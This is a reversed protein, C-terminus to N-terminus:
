VTSTTTVSTSQTPRPTVSVTALTKPAWSHNECHRRDRHEKVSPYYSHKQACDRPQTFVTKHEQPAGHRDELFRSLRIGSHPLRLRICKSVTLIRHDVPPPRQHIRPALTHLYISFSAHFNLLPVLVSRRRWLSSLLARLSFSTSSSLSSEEDPSVAYVINSIFTMLLVVATRQCLYQLPAPLLVVIRLSVAFLCAFSSCLMPIQRLFSSSTPHLTYSPAPLYIAYSVRSFRSFQLSTHRFNLSKV